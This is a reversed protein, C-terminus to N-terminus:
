SVKADQIKCKKDNRKSVASFCFSGLFNLASQILFVGRVTGSGSSRQDWLYGVTSDRSFM